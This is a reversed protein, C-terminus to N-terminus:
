TCMKVFVIVYSFSSFGKQVPNVPRLPHIMYIM